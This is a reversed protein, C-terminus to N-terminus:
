ISKIHQENKQEQQDINQIILLQQNLLQVRAQLNELLAQRVAPNDSSNRYDTKLQDYMTDLAHLEKDLDNCLEPYRGSFRNLESRKVEVISTYYVEAKKLEPNAATEQNTQLVPKPQGYRSLVAFAGVILLLTAAAYYVPWLRVKKRDIRRNISRWLHAPPEHLDFEESHDSIFKEFNDQM